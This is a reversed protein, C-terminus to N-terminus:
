HPVKGGITGKADLEVTLSRYEEPSLKTLDDDVLPHARYAPATKGQLEKALLGHRNRGVYYEHSALVDIRAPRDRQNDTKFWYTGPPLELQLEGLSDKMLREGCFLKPLSDSTRVRVNESVHVYAYGLAPDPQLAAAAKRSVSLPGNLYVVAITGEPVVQGDGKSLLTLLPVGATFFLGVATGTADAAGKAAKAGRNPPKLIPRVTATEGTPLTFAEYAVKVQGDKGGRHPRNVSVVKAALTTRQPIVVVGGVRVEFAVALDIVDGVQSNESSFGKAVKIRLSTGDPVVFPEGDDPHADVTAQMIGLPVVAFEPGTPEIPRSAPVTPQILLCFLFLKFTTRQEM